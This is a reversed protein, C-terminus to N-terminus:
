ENEDPPPFKCCEYHGNLLKTIEECLVTWKHGHQEKDQKDPHYHLIAALLAKKTNDEMSKEDLKHEPNKPPYTKYLHKMFCQVGSTGSGTNAEELDKLEAELEKLYKEREKQRIAEDNTVTESQYRRLAETCTKYWGTCFDIDKYVQQGLLMTIFVYRWEFNFTFNRM